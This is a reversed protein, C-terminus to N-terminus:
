EKPEPVKYLKQAEDWAVGEVGFREELSSLYYPYANLRTVPRGEIMARARYPIERYPTSAKAQGAFLLIRGTVYFSISPHDKPGPVPDRLEDIVLTQTLQLDRVASMRKSLSSRHDEIIEHAVMGELTGILPTGTASVQNLIPLTGQLFAAMHPGNPTYARASAQLIDADAPNPVGDLRFTPRQSVLWASFFMVSVLGLIVMLLGAILRQQSVCFGLEQKHKLWALRGPPMGDAFPTPEPQPAPQRKQRVRGLLQTALSM